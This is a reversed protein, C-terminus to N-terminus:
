VAESHGYILLLIIVFRQDTRIYLLPEQLDSDALIQSICIYDSTSFINRTMMQNSHVYCCECCHINKVSMSYERKALFIQLACIEEKANKYKSVQAQWTKFLQEHTKLVAHM